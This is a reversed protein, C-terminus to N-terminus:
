KTRVMYEIMNVYMEKLGVEARWGLNELKTTDLDMYLTNAYGQAAVDQEEIVVDIGYNDAVLKAMEYISCYTDKNAVTYANGPEGNVLVTLIASVADDTYLYCRETEGKTKLVINRKEIACRAFEAFVRGDDYEVGPGFTQTLRAVRSPVGYEKCFAFCLNESLLKSLPYCNRAVTTDFAGVMDETVKSGKEPYGYIEMTSLFVFGSVNKDKAINLIAKTGGVATTITEVPNNVFFKSSTPNAGHIIYDVDEDIQTCNEIGDTILVLRLEPQKLLEGFVREAKEESRVMALITINAGSEKNVKMLAKVINSCILGTAGTILITKNKLNEIIEKRQM